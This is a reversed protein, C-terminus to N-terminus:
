FVLILIVHIGFNGFVIEVLAKLDLVDGYSVNLHQVSSDARHFVAVFVIQVEDFVQLTAVRDV